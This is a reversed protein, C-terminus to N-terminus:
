SGCNCAASANQPADAKKFLSLQDFVLPLFLIAVLFTVVAAFLGGFYTYALWALVGAIIIILVSPM